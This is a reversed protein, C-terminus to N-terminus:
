LSRIGLAPACSCVRTETDSPVADETAVTAECIGGCWLVEGNAVLAIGAGPVHGKDLVDKMAKQLEQLTKPHPQDDKQQTAGEAPSLLMLAAALLSIGALLEVRRM